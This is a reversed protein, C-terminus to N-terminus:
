PGAEARELRRRSGASCLPRRRAPAVGGRRPLAVRRLFDQLARTMRRTDSM